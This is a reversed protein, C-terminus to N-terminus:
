GPWAYVYLVGSTSTASQTSATCSTVTGMWFQMDTPTPGSYRGQTHVSDPTSIDNAMSNLTIDYLLIGAAPVEIRATVMTWTSIAVRNTNSTTDSINMSNGPNCGTVQTASVYLNLLSWIYQSATDGGLRALLSRAAANTNQLRGVVMFSSYASPLSVTAVTVNTFSGSSVLIMPGPSIGAPVSVATYQRTGDNFTIGQNATVINLGGNTITLTSAMTTYSAFHTNSSLTVQGTVTGGSVGFKSDLDQQLVQQAGPKTMDEVPLIQTEGYASKTLTYLLIFM